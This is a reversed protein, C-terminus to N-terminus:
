ASLDQLVAEIEDPTVDDVLRVEGIRTPLVFRVRGDKVKKDLKMTAMLRHPDTTAPLRTPLGCRDLLRVMRDQEEASWLGRKVAMRGAAEMGIAVAEGHRFTGYGAITELAHGITHGFNLTARLGSVEREDQGVIDAKIGCSGEVVHGMAEADDALVKEIERELFEFYSADRILGHKIVEAMGAVFERRPLTKLLDTDVFVLRPQWFAGILNKGRSHNIGTKGGVSSDVMAVLSSPVQVFDIGRLYTAAAFGALDGVVGGGLAVISGQRPVHRELLFDLVFSFVDLSKAHEGAAVVCTATEFGAESLSAQVTDAYLPAVNSDSLVVVDRGRLVGKLREGVRNLWGAGIEIPYSRDGLDVNLSILPNNV